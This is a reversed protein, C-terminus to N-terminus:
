PVGVGVGVGMGVFPVSCVPVYKGFVIGLVVQVSPVVGDVVACGVFGFVVRYILGIGLTVDSITGDVVVGLVVVTAGPLVVCRDVRGNGLEALKWIWVGL